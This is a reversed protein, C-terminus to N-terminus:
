HSTGGHEYLKHDCFFCRTEVETSMLDVEGGCRPCTTLFEPMDDTPPVLSYAKKPPLENRNM